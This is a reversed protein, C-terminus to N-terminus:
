MAQFLVNKTQLIDSENLYSRPLCRFERTTLLCRDANEPSIFDVAIKICSRINRVQHPAGAPIFIADGLCQIITYCKIGYFLELKEIDHTHLYFRQDHIINRDLTRKQECAKRRTKFPVFVNFEECTRLHKNHVSIHGISRNKSYIFKQLATM